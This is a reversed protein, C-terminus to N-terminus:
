MYIVKGNPIKGFVFKNVSMIVGVAVSYIVASNGRTLPMLNYIYYMMTLIKDMVSDTNLAKGIGIRKIEEQIQNFVADIEAHYLQTRAKTNVVNIAFTMKDNTDRSLVVMSGDLREENKSSPVQTSVMFGNENINRKRAIMLLDECTKAREIDQQLDHYFVAGDGAYHELMTKALKFVLDFYQMVKINQVDGKIFNIETHYGDVTDHDPMKDLWFIPQEPDVLRRYQVAINFVERWDLSRDLQKNLRIERWRKDLLQAIHMSALGMAFNHRRSPLYGDAAVQMSLGVRHAKCVLGQLERGFEVISVYSVDNIEPQLGPQEKYTNKFQFPLQKTWRDKFEPHFSDINLNTLPTDLNSHLFRAYERLYHAKIFEPTAKIAPTNNIMVKMSSKLGQYYRGMAICTLSKMYQCNINSPNIELCKDFNHKAVRHEGYAYSMSGWLQWTQAHNPNMHASQNFRRWAPKFNGIERFAQGLSTSAEVHDPKLKLVDKFVEIANRVKGQYYLALGLHFYSGVYLSNEPDLNKRFDEEAEVFNELLLHVIGRIFFLRKSPSSKAAVNLDKLADNFHQLAIYSEARREYIEHYNNDKMIAETFERVSKAANAIEQIGMRQYVIGRGYHAGVVDPHHMLINNFIQMADDLNGMNISVFGLALKSDIDYNKTQMPVKESAALDEALDELSHECSVADRSCQGRDRADSCLGIPLKASNEECDTTVEGVAIFVNSRIPALRPSSNVINQSCIVCSEGNVPELRKVEFVQTTGDENEVHINEIDYVNSAYLCSVLCTFVLLRKGEM